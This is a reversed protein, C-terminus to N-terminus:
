TTAAHRRDRRVHLRGRLNGLAALALGCIIAGAGRFGNLDGKAVRLLETGVGVTLTRLAFTIEATLNAAEAMGHFAEVKETNVFLCRRWFYHWTVREAPVFHHVRAAPAYMLAGHGYAHGLRMCLDLDDFDISQFGGVKDFASRRFSMNAGILHRIPGTQTPLGLYECGFVWDFSRPFWDPRATEYIPLPPGGVAVVSEDTYTELLRELWDPEARADDDIIAVVEGTTIEVAANRASGAGFRRRSGHAREHASVFNVHDVDPNRMVTLGPLSGWEASAREFLEENNDICLVIDNTTSSQSRVSDMCAVLLDWRKM